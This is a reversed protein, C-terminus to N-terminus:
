RRQRTTGQGNSATKRSQFIQVEVLLIRTQNLAADHHGGGQRRRYRGHDAGARGRLRCHHHQAQPLRHSRQLRHLQPQLSRALPADALAAGHLLHLRHRVRLARDACGQLLGQGVTPNHDERRRHGRYDIFNLLYM